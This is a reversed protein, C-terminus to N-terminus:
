CWINKERDGSTWTLLSTIWTNYGISTIKKEASEIHLFSLQNYKKVPLLVSETRQIDM